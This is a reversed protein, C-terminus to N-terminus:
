PRHHNVCDELVKLADQHETNAQQYADRNKRLAQKAKKYAAKVRAFEKASVEYAVGATKMKKEKLGALRRAQKVTLDPAPAAVPIAGAAPAVLIAPVAPAPVIALVPVAAM